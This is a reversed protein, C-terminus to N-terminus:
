PTFRRIGQGALGDWHREFDSEPFRSRVIRAPNGAVIVNPPVDKSVVAGAGIVSSDGVTIGSLVTAAYGIWVDSGILVPLSLEEPYDAVWRSDKIPVGVQSIQHDTRGVIGAMNAILVADGILGDVEIRVRSGVSCRNGIQLGRPAWIRSGNGYQFDSGVVVNSTVTANLRRKSILTRIVQPSKM